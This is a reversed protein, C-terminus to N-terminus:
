DLKRLAAYGPFESSAFFNLRVLLKIDFWYRDGLLGQIPGIFCYEGKMFWGYNRCKADDYSYEGRCSDLCRPLTSLADSVMGFRDSYHM